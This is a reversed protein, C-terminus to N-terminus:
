HARQAQREHRRRTGRVPPPLRTPRAAREVRHDHEARGLAPAARLVHVALLGLAAPARVLHRQGAGAVGLRVELHQAAPQLAVLGCLQKVLVATFPPVPPSLSTSSYRRASASCQSRQVPAPRRTRGAGTATFASTRRGVGTSTPAPLDTQSMESVWEPAVPDVWRPSALKPYGRTGFHLEFGDAPNFIGSRSLIRDWVPAFPASVATKRWNPVTVHGLTSNQPRRPTVLELKPCGATGNQLERGACARPHWNPVDQQGMKSGRSQGLSPIVTQYVM